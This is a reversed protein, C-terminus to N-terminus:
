GASTDDLLGDMLRVVIRGGPVDIQRVVQPIDPLLVEGDPGNVVFVDNAGTEIVDDLTGLQRGGETVVQLGLLEFLYHEGDNLPVADKISVHALMDRFRGAADRDTIGELSLLLGDRHRRIGIVQCPVYEPGLYLTELTGLREPYDTIIQMRLEGRVGHPRLIRGVVLYGSEHPQKSASRNRAHKSQYSSM